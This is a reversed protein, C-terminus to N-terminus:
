GCVGGCCGGVVLFLLFCKKTVLFWWIEFCGVVFLFLCSHFCMSLANFIPLADAVPLKWSNMPCAVDESISATPVIIRVLSMSGSSYPSYEMANIGDEIIIRNWSQPILAAMTLYVAWNLAAFLFSSTCSTIVAPSVKSIMVPRDKDNRQRIRAFVM